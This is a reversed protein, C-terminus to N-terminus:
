GIIEASEENKKKKKFFNFYTEFILWRSRVEMEQGELSPTLSGFCLGPVKYIAWSNVM